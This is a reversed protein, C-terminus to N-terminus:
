RTYTKTTHFKKLDYATPLYERQAKLQVFPLIVLLCAIMNKM